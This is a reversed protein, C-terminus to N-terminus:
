IIKLWNKLNFISGAKEPVSLDLSESVRDELKDASAIRFAFRKGLFGASRLKEVAPVPYYGARVWHDRSLRRVTRNTHKFMGFM